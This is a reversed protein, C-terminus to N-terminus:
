NLVLFSTHGSMMEKRKLRGLITQQGTWVRSVSLTTTESLAIVPRHAGTGAASAVCGGAAGGEWSLAAAATGQPAAKSM